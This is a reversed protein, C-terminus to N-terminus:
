LHGKRIAEWQKDIFALFYMELGSHLFSVQNNIEELEAFDM